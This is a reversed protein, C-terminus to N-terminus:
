RRHCQGVDAIRRCVTQAFQAVRTLPKSKTPISGLGGARKPAAAVVTALLILAVLALLLGLKM